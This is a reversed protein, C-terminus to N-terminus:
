RAHRRDTREACGAGIRGGGGILNEVVQRAGRDADLVADLTDAETLKVRDLAEAALSVIDGFAIRRALFAAVAAENAGNLVAGATGGLRIVRYALDLAPFRATDPPEFDLRRMASWDLRQGCGEIRRPHTLSVHIPTKMDPPGLQALVSGDVFEVLAHVTSQPHILVDIREGEIGFLWHAEIVELAKNMMTASDITIKPGMDWTPHDLAQEPTADRITDPDADRFPGGSATLIIRRVGDTGREDCAALCQAVGSHESDVPLLNAGTRRALPTVLGGAAVLTEKNALHIRMGREVAALTASLGAVGVIAAVVDTADSQAVLRRAADPGALLRADPLQRHLRAAADADALALTARPHQRAQETLRQDNCGAALGVLDFRAEGTRALHTAVELTNVGISGTSGLVILQRAPSSPPPDPM